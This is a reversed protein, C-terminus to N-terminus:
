RKLPAVTSAMARPAHHYTTTEAAPAHSPVNKATRVHPTGYRDVAAVELHTDGVVEGARGISQLKARERRIVQEIEGLGARQGVEHPLREGEIDEDFRLCAAVGHRVLGHMARHVDELPNARAHADIVVLGESIEHLPEGGRDVLRKRRSGESVPPPKQAGQWSYTM